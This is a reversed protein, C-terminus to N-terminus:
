RLKERAGLSGVNLAQQLPTLLPEDTPTDIYRGGWRVVGERVEEQFEKAVASFAARAAVPDVALPAGGEPSFFKAPQSFSFSWERNDRVHMFRVDARRKSFAALTPLWQDPAEMGDTLLFVVSRRRSRQGVRMLSQRLDAAGGPTVSALAGFLRQLQQRGGRPPYTHGPEHAGVIELGVPEGHLHLFYLLTAALVIANGAKTDEFNPLGGDTPLGTAMDGSLDLVITAHLETESEFRRVVLRDTRGWVKWDLFRLDMGPQYVSYGAFEVAQGVRRSRHEGHLLAETLIRAQLHLRRIRALLEPDWIM